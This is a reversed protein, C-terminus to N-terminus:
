PLVTRVIRYFIRMNLPSDGTIIEGVLMQIVIVANAVPTIQSVGSAAHYPHVWRTQATTQDLFGTVECSGVQLGAGNTYNFALDEGGAVGAYAVGAPKHLMAGKFIYSRNAGPADLVNIPTAKLALIQASTVQIYKVLQVEDNFFQGRLKEM